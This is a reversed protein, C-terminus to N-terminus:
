REGKGVGDFDIFEPPVGETLWVQNPTLLFTHGARHMEGAAVPLVVPRGRRRGVELASARDPSLHVHHRSMRRLGERSITALSAAVTGHFLKEPPAVPLYGLDIAISHGQCARIRLGDDSFAFRQKPNTAVIREPQERTITKGHFHAQRLLAEVLAWGGADVALDISEPSHRLVYGLFRSLRTRSERDMAPAAM